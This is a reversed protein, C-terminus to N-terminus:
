LSGANLSSIDYEKLKPHNYMDIFMTPTGMVFTCKEAEIAKLSQEANFVPCALVCTAGSNITSLSAIIMGFCHYLPLFLCIITGRKFFEHIHCNEYSANLIMHHSTVVGTITFAFKRFIM